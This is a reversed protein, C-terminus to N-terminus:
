RLFWLAVEQRLHRFAAANQQDLGVILPAPDAAEDRGLNVDRRDPEHVDGAARPQVIRVYANFDKFRRQVPSRVFSQHRLEQLIAGVENTYAADAQELILELTNGTHDPVDEFTGITAPPGIAVALRPAM